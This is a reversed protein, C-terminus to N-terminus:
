WGRYNGNVDANAGKKGEKTMNGKADVGAKSSGNDPNRITMAPVDSTAGLKILAEAKKKQKRPIHSLTM